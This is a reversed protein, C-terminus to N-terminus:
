ERAKLVEVVDLKRVRRLVMLNAFAGFLSVVLITTLISDPRLV